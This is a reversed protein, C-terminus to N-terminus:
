SGALLSARHFEDPTKLQPSCQPRETGDVVISQSGMRRAQAPESAQRPLRENNLIGNVRRWPMGTATTM